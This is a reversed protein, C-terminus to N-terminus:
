IISLDIFAQGHHFKLQDGNGNVVVIRGEFDVDVLIFQERKFGDGDAIRLTVNENLRWLHKQFDVHIQIQNDLKQLHGHVNEILSMLVSYINTEIQNIQFLSTASVLNQPFDTQNINIGVGFFAIKQNNINQIEFLIGSLKKDDSFIDNPWKITLQTQTFNQIAHLVSITLIKNLEILNWHKQISIAFTIALNKGNESHWQNNNQGIGNTQNLCYVGIHNVLLSPAYPSNAKNQVLLKCLSQTSKCQNSFYIEVESYLQEFQIDEM